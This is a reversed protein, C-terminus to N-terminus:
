SPRRGTAVIKGHDLLVVDDALTDAEELYQTTLILTTGGGVLQRLLDWLENRSEPDLGTTPEDLFLVPPSAVLSAALDLRRRM